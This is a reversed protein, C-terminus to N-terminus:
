LCKNNDKRIISCPGFIILLNVDDDFDGHPGQGYSVTMSEKTACVVDSNGSAISTVVHGNIALFDM